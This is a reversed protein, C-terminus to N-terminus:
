RRGHESVSLIFVQYPHWYNWIIGSPMMQYYFHTAARCFSTTSKRIRRSTIPWRRRISWRRTSMRWGSLDHTTLVLATERYKHQLGPMKTNSSEGSTDLSGTLDDERITPVCLRYIPDEEYNDWDVLSLYYRTVRMPYKHLIADMRREEEESLQRFERLQAASTINDQLQKKWTM